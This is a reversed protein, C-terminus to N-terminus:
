HKIKLTNTLTKTVQDLVVFATEGMKNGKNDLLPNVEVFEMCIVKNSKIIRDIIKIIEFEDFGKSVPTGTGYSILDCDMSDVDFSIYIMDCDKLKDLAEDVCVELGRHRIEHVMYNRLALKQMQNDEPDETDRVGFYVLNEPKLKSGKIGMNKMNEWYHISNTSVKNIRNEINDEGLAAALPMGHINGSPSTFPSHMDAHADIWVVGLRKEPFTKKIGSITGLASSHDGSIVLPFSQENLSDNVANCVRECQYSVHEIRKMYTNKVKNYISENETEVDVFDFRTFYDNNANIAAIEIADIGMDSGRTGAGIDSRNKIIKIRNM